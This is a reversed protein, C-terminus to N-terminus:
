MREPVDIGLMWFARRIVDGGTKSLALRFARIDANEEKMIQYDHYFQNYEKVLNYAYNAIISPSYSKGAEAVVDAFEVLRQIIAIEKENPEFADSNFTLALGQEAAKRLVSQIRANTYQIYPGTTGNYDISAKPTFPMNKRPAVKLIFYKLAGM